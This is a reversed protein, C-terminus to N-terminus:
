KNLMGKYSLTNSIFRHSWTWNDDVYNVYQKDSLTITDEQHLELMRLTRDYEATFKEPRPVKIAIKPFKGLDIQERMTMVEERAMTLYKVRAEVYDEEHIARNKTLIEQLESVKVKINM